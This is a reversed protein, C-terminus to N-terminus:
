LGLKKKIAANDKQLADIMVQQEKIAQVLVPILETYNLALTGTVADAKVLQPLVKQVDQAILGIHNDPNDIKTKLDKKAQEIYKTEKDVKSTINSLAALQAEESKTKYNYTFCNLKQIYALGILLPQINKKLTSDSPTLSAGQTLYGSIKMNGYPDIYAVERNASGFASGTQASTGIAQGSTFHIGQKGHLQLADTDWINSSYTGNPDYYEGIFVNVGTAAHGVDGFSLRAGGSYGSNDGAQTGLISTKM